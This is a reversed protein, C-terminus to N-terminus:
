VGYFLAEMRKEDADTMIRAVAPGFGDPKQKKVESPPVVEEEKEEFVVAAAPEQIPPAEVTPHEAQLKKVFVQIPISQQPSIAIVPVEKTPIVEKIPEPPPLTLPEITVPAPSVNDKKTPEIPQKPLPEPEVQQPLSDKPEIKIIPSTIPSIPPPQAYAEKEKPKSGSGSGSDSPPPPLPGPFVAPDVPVTPQNSLRLAINIYEVKRPRTRKSETELKNIEAIGIDGKCGIFTKLQDITMNYAANQTISM